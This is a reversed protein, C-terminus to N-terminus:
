EQDYKIIENNKLGKQPGYIFSAGDKGYLPNSVDAAITINVENLKKDINKFDVFKIKFIDEGYIGVENMDQDYFKGGLAQLMGIGLDNTSSSGIGIYIKNFNLDLAGKIVEGLGYSTTYNANIENKKLLEIGSVKAMEIIATNKNLIGIPVKIYKGIPNKAKIKITKNTLSNIFGEGGDSINILNYSANKNVKKFAKLIQKNVEKSTMSDKFSDSAIVVKCNTKLSM